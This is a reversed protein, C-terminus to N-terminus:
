PPQKNKHLVELEPELVYILVINTETRTGRMFQVLSDLEPDIKGFFNFEPKPKLEL